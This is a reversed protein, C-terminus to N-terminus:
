SSSYVLSSMHQLLMSRARNVTNFCLCIHEELENLLHLFNPHSKSLQKLVEQIPHKDTATGTVSGRELGLRILLKDGEVATHLRRVLRDITALDNNLVCTGMAAADLQNM